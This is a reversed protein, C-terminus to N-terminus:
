GRAEAPIAPSAPTAAEVLGLEVLDAVPEEVGCCGFSVFWRRAAVLRVDALEQARALLVATDQISLTAAVSGADQGDLAQVTALLVNLFGHHEFGSDPAAHRVAHHLGATLKFPARAAVAATLTGALAEPSPFAEATLGGTRYKAILAQGDAAREGVAALVRGGVGGISLEAALRHGAPVKPLPLEAVPVEFGTVTVGTPLVPPLETTGILVLRVEPEGAAAHAAVFADWSHVPVLLPGILDAYWAARHGLHAHLAAAATANGPPFMAADDLLAAFAARPPKPVGSRYQVLTGDNVDGATLHPAM